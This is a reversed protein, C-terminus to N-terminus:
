FVPKDSNASGVQPARLENRQDLFKAPGLGKDPRRSIIQPAGAEFVLGDLGENLAVFVKQLEVEFPEGPRRAM